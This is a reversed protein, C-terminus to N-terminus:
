IVVVAAAVAVAAAAATAAVVVIERFRTCISIIKEFIKLHWGAEAAEM